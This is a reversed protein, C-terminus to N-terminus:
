ENNTNALPLWLTFANGTQAQSEITIQGGHEDAIWQAVNLGMNVSDTDYAYSDDSRYFLDFLHGMQETSILTAHDVVTIRAMADEVTLEVSVHAGPQSPDLANRLLAKLAECILYGNGKIMVPTDRVNVELEVARDRYKQRIAFVSTGVLTRADHLQQPANALQLALNFYELQEILRDVGGRMSELRQLAEKGRQNTLLRVALERSLEIESIHNRFFHATVRGFRHAAAARSQRVLLTDIRREANEPAFTHRVISMLGTREGRADTLPINIWACTLSRGDATLYKSTSYVPVPQQMMEEFGLRTDVQAEAPVLFELAKQGIVEHPA